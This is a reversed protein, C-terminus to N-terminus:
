EKDFYEDESILIIKEARSLHSVHNYYGQLTIKEGAKVQEKSIKRLLTLIVYSKKDLIDDEKDAFQMFAFACISDKKAVSHATIQVRGYATIDSIYVEKIKHEPYDLSGVTPIKIPFDLEKYAHRYQALKKKELQKLESKLELSKGVSSTLDRKNKLSSKAEQYEAFISPLKGFYKSDKYGRNGCSYIFILLLLLILRFFTHKARM